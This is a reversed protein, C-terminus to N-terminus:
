SVYNLKKLEQLILGTIEDPYKKYTDIKICEVLKQRKFFETYGDFVKLRYDETIVEDSPSRELVVNKNSSTLYVVVPKMKKLIPYIYDLNDKRKYVDSYILSSLPGRDVIFSDFSFLSLMQNFMWSMEEIMQKKFYKKAAPKKIIPLDLVFSLLRAITSKGIGDPGEIFLILKKNIKAM